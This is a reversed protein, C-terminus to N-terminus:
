APMPPIAAAPAGLKAYLLRRQSELADVVGHAHDQQEEIEKLQERFAAASAKAQEKTELRMKDQRVIESKWRSILEECESISEIKEYKPHELAM